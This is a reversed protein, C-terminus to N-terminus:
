KGSDPDRFLHPFSTSSPLSDLWDPWAAALVAEAFTGERPTEAIAGGDRRVPVGM